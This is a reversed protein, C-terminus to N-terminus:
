SDGPSFGIEQCVLQKLELLHSWAIPNVWIIGEEADYIASVQGPEPDVKLRLYHGSIVILMESRPFLRSDM